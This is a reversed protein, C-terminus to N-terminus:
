QIRRKQITLVVEKSQCIHHGVWPCFLVHLVQLLDLTLLTDPSHDVTELGFLPLHDQQSVVMVHVSFLRGLPKVQGPGPRCRNLCLREPEQPVWYITPYQQCVDFTSFLQSFAFM